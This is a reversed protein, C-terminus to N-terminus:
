VMPFGLHFFKIPLNHPISLKRRIESSVCYINVDNTNWEIKHGLCEVFQFQPTETKQGFYRYGLHGLPSVTQLM